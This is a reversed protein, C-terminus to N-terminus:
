FYLKPLFSYSEYDDDLVSLKYFMFFVSSEAFDLYFSFLSLFPEDFFM